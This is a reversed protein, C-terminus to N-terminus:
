APEYIIPVSPEDGSPNDWDGHRRFAAFDRKDAGADAAQAGDANGKGYEHIM